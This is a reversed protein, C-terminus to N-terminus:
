PDFLSWVGPRDVGGGLEFLVLRDGGGGGDGHVLGGGGAIVLDVL